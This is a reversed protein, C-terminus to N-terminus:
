KTVERFIEAREVDTFAGAVYATTEHHETTYPDCYCGELWDHAGVTVPVPSVSPEFAEIPRLTAIAWAVPSGYDDADDADYTLTVTPQASIERTDGDMWERSEDYPDVTRRHITVEYRATM